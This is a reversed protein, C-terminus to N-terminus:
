AQLIREAVGRQLAEAKCLVRSPTEIDEHPLQCEIDRGHDAPSSAFGTGKRWNLNIFKLESLLDYCFREFETETFHDLSFPQM